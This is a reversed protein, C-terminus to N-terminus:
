PFWPEGLATAVTKPDSAKPTYERALKRNKQNKFWNRIFKFM